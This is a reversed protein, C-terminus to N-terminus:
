VVCYSQAPLSTEGLSPHSDPRPGRPSKEGNDVLILTEQCGWGKQCVEHEAMWQPPIESVNSLLELTGSQCTLNQAGSILLFIWKLGDKLFVGEWTLTRM